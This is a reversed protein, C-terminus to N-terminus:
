LIYRATRYYFNMWCVKYQKNSARSLSAFEHGIEM